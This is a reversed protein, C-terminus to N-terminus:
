SLRKLSVDYNDSVSLIYEKLPLKVVYRNNEFKMDEMVKECVSLGKEQIGLLDIKWINDIKREEFNATKIHLVNNEVYTTLSSPNHNTVPGILLCGLKSGLAVPTLGNVRKVSGDFMDWYYDAGILLDINETHLGEDALKFNKLFPYNSKVFKVKQGNVSGCVVPVSFGSLYLQLVNGNWGRLVFKFEGLEKVQGKTDGFAKIQVNQKSITDLQSFDRVTDSLYTKQSGRDLLAKVKWSRTESPNLIICDATQLLIDTKRTM